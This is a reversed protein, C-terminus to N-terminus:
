CFPLKQHKRRRRKKEARKQKIKFINVVQADTESKIQRQKRNALYVADKKYVTVGVVNRNYSLKLHTLIFPIRM